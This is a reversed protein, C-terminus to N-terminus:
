SECPFRPTWKALSQLVDKFGTNLLMWIVASTQLNPTCPHDLTRFVPLRSCQVIVGELMGRKVAGTYTGMSESSAQLNKTMPVVDGETPHSLYASATWRKMDNAGVKGVGTSKLFWFDIPNNM